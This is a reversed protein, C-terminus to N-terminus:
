EAEKELDVLMQKLIKFALDYNPYFKKNETILQNFFENIKKDSCIENEIIHNLAVSCLIKYKEPWGGKLTKKFKILPIDNPDHDLEFKEDMHSVVDSYAKSGGKMMDYMEKEEKTLEGEPYKGGPLAETGKMEEEAGFM